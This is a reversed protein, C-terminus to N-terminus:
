FAAAILFIVGFVSFFIISFTATLAVGPFSGIAALALSVDKYQDLSDKVTSRLARTLKAQKMLGMKQDGDFGDLVNSINDGVNDVLSWVSSKLETGQEVVLTLARWSRFAAGIGVLAGIGGVVLWITRWSGSLAILGLVFGSVGTIVALFFFAKAFWQTRAAAGSILDFAKGALQEVDTANM